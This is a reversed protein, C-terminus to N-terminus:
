MRHHNLSSLSFSLNATCSGLRYFVSCSWMSQSYFFVLQFCVLTGIQHHHSVYQKFSSLRLDMDVSEVQGGSVPWIINLGKIESLFFYFLHFSVFSILTSVPHSTVLWTKSISAKSSRWLSADQQPMTFWAWSSRQRPRRVSQNSRHPAKVAHWIQSASRHNVVRFVM